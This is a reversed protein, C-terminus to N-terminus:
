DDEEAVKEEKVSEIRPNYAEGIKLFDSLTDDAFQFSLKPLPFAKWRSQIESRPYKQPKITEKETSVPCSNYTFWIREGNNNYIIEDIMWGLHRGNIGFIQQENYLFAVPYGDWLYITNQYDDAIYAVANGDKNFLSREM